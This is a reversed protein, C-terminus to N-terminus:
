YNILESPKILRVPLIKYPTSKFFAFQSQNDFDIYIAFASPTINGSTSTWYIAGSSLSVGNSNLWTNLNSEGYNMLTLMQNTNPIIWDNYGFNSGLNPNITNNIFSISDNWTRPTSDDGPFWMLSTMNDVITGSTTTHFRPTPWDVGKELDGDDGLSTVHSNIQGTKPIFKSEGRVAWVCFTSTKDSTTITNANMDFSYANLTPNNPFSTSTWWKDTSSCNNFFASLYENGIRGYNALSRLENTNPLYWDYYGCFGTIYQAELVANDFPYQSTIMKADKLWMLGTMLDTVTGDGNDRFRPNPWSVGRQTAGDELPNIGSYSGAGTKFIPIARYMNVTYTNSYSEDASTVIIEVTNSGVALNSIVHEAGNEVPTGNITITALQIEPVAILSNSQKDNYAPSASDSFPIPADLYPLNGSNFDPQLKGKKVKLVSLNRNSMDALSLVNVSVTYVATTGDKATVTYSVPTTFDQVTGSEPSISAGNHTIVPALATVSAGYPLVSKVTTGTIRAKYGGLTFSTIQKSSTAKSSLLNDWLDNSIDTDSSGCATSFLIIAISIFLTKKM